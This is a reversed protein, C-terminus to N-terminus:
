LLQLLAGVQVSLTFFSFNVSEHLRFHVRKFLRDSVGTSRRPLTKFFLLVHGTPWTM